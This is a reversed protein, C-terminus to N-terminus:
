FCIKIKSNEHSEKPSLFLTDSIARNLSSCSEVKDFSNCLDISENRILSGSSVIRPLDYANYDVDLLKTLQQSKKEELKLKDIFYSENSNKRVDLNPNLRQLVIDNNCLFKLKENKFNTESSLNDKNM